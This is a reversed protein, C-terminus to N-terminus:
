PAVERLPGCGGATSIQRHRLPAGGPADGFLATFHLGGANEWRTRANVLRRWITRKKSEDPPPTRHALEVLRTAVQMLSTLEEDGPEAGPMAWAGTLLLDDICRDLPEYLAREAHM